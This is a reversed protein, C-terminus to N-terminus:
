NSSFIGSAPGHYGRLFDEVRVIGKGETQIEILELSNDPCHALFKRGITYTGPEGKEEFLKVRLIKLKRGNFITWSGPIPSTGHIFRLLSQATANWEINCNERFLKPAPTAEQNSQPMTKYNGSKILEITEITLESALPMLKDHLDGATTSDDIAVEKKLLMDGTDVKERLIFSTLGTKTEGKIIAWNIPAAGRYKPLLSGHINFSAIKALKYVAPPLIRFAIVVIIDPEYESLKDVFELSKLSEPQLVPIGLEIAKQKVPSPIIKRGRGQPKDPITVVAKVGYKESTAELSPVSFEPTGMFVINPVNHKM